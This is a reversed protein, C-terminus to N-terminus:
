QMETQAPATAPAPTSNDQAQARAIGATFLLLVLFRPTNM